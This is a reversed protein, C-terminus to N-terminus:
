GIVDITNSVIFDVTKRRALGKYLHGAGSYPKVYCLGFDINLSSLQIEWNALNKYVLM